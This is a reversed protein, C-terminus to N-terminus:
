TFKVHKFASTYHKATNIVLRSYHDPNLESAVVGFGAELFSIPGSGVGAFPDYITQGQIAVARALWQWLKVPKAFPHEFRKKTDENSGMWFNTSQPTVLTPNGKRCVMCTEVAKTFNVQAAQNLCSHTKIWFVPWRQVTFGAARARDQLFQHYDLDYWLVFFSNPKLVQYAAPFLASMIEVNGEVTHENATARVDMGSNPQSLMSMDIGFPMDTIIHDISEPPIIGNTMHDICSGQFLIKTLSIITCEETPSPETPTPAGPDEDVLSPAVIGEGSRFITTSAPLTTFFSEPDVATALQQVVDISPALQSGLTLKALRRAAEEEKRRLVVKLAETPGASAIIETDNSRILSALLMCNSVNGVSQGLLEGTQQQTWRKTNGSLISDRFKLEHVRAVGLVREQWTFDKRRINEEVELMRQRDESMTEMFVALVQPQKLVDRVARLRSGGAILKYDATLVVPQLQGHDSISNALEEVHSYDARIRNSDDILNCDVLLANTSTIM